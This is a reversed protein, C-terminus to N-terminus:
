RGRQDISAWHGSGPTFRGNWVSEPAVLEQIDAKGSLPRELV